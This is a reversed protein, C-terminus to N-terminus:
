LSPKGSFGIGRLWKEQVSCTGPRKINVFHAHLICKSIDLPTTNGIQIRIDNQRQDEKFIEAVKAYTKMNKEAEKKKAAEQKEKIIKKREPCAMAM